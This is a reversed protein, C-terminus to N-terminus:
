FHPIIVPKPSFCQFFQSVKTTFFSNKTLNKSNMQIYDM